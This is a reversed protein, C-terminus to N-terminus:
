GERPIASKCPSGNRSTGPHANLYETGFHFARDWEREDIEEKRSDVVGQNACIFDAIIPYFGTWRDVRLPGPFLDGDLRTGRKYTNVTLLRSGVPLGPLQPRPVFRLIAVCDLEDTYAAVLLPDDSVVVAARSDGFSMHEVIMERMRKHQAKRGSWGYLEPCFWRLREDSVEVPVPDSAYTSDDHYRSPQRSSRGDDGAEAEGNEV